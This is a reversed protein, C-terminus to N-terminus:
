EVDQLFPCHQQLMQIQEKRTGNLFALRQLVRERFHYVMATYQYLRPVIIVHWAKGTELPPHTLGIRDIQIKAKDTTMCQVLDAKASDTMKM